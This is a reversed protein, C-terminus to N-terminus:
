RRKFVSLFEMVEKPITEEKIARDLEEREQRKARAYEEEMRATQHKMIARKLSPYNVRISWQEILEDDKVAKLFDCLEHHQIADYIAEMQETSPNQGALLVVRKISQFFSKRDIM